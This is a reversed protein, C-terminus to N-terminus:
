CQRRLLFKRKESRTSGYLLHLDVKIQAKQLFNYQGNCYCIGKRSSFLIRTYICNPPLARPSSHVSVNNTSRPACLPSLNTSNGDMRQTSMLYIRINFTTISNTPILCFYKVIIVFFLSSLRFIQISYDYACWKTELPQTTMCSETCKTYTRYLTTTVRLVSWHEWVTFEYFLSIVPLSQM